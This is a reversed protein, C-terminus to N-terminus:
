LIPEKQPLGAKRPYLDPTPKIKEIIVLKHNLEEKQGEQNVFGRIGIFKGGLAEIAKHSDQLETEIDSGKYSIFAGGQKVLPICYESLVALKAVARSLCLDYQERDRKNRGFDEARSHVLIINNLELKGAIDKLINIKKALSDVLTFKKHPSLIALPIGPFGAGTGIDVIKKANKYYDEKFCMVSDVFHKLIFEEEDKITTLNVKENWELVLEMYLRFKNIQEETYSIELNELANKLVSMKDM